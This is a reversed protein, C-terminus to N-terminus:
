KSGYKEKLAAIKIEAQKVIDKENELYKLLQKSRLYFVLVDASLFLGAPIFFVIFCLLNDFGPIKLLSTILAATILAFAIGVFLILVWFSILKPSCDKEIEVMEQYYPTDTNREFYLISPAGEKKDEKVLRWDFLGMLYVSRDVLHSNVKRKCNEM